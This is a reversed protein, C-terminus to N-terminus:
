GPPATTPARAATRPSAAASSRSCCCWRALRVDGPQAPRHQVRRPRREGDDDAHSLRRQDPEPQRPHRLRRDGGLVGQHRDAPVDGRGGGAAGARLRQQSLHAVAPLHGGHGRSRAHRAGSAGDLECVGPAPSRGAPAVLDAGGGGTRLRGRRRLEPQRLQLDGPQHDGARRGHAGDAGAADRALHELRGASRGALAAHRPLPRALGARQADTPNATGWIDFGQFHSRSSNQYGTRQIVALKGNDFIAKLGTLGPHLGLLTASRPRHRDPDGRRGARAITPRRAYYDTDGYPVLTSLADNGGNLYVVVLNRPAAARRWRWSSLFQPAAFGITFASVGGRVFQRRTFRM